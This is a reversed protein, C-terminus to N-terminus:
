RPLTFFADASTTFREAERGYFGVPVLMISDEGSEESGFTFNTGSSFKFLYDAMFRQYERMNFRRHNHGANANAFLPTGNAFAQRLTYLNMFNGHEDQLYIRFTPDLMIWQRLERSFAHVIVHVPHDNEPPYATIHKAEIGYLRLVEALLIALLRCNGGANHNERMYEVITIANRSEAPPMGSAGYHWFNDKVWDMLVRMLAVDNKGATLEDLGFEEVQTHM